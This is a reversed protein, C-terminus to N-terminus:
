SKAGTKKCSHLKVVSSNIRANQNLSPSNGHSHPQNFVLSLFPNQKNLFFRTTLNEEDSGWQCSIGETLTTRIFNQCLRNKYNVM